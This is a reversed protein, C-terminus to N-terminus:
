KLIAGVFDRQGRLFERSNLEQKGALQLKKIVLANEGCQVALGSNYLFTKGPQYSNIELPRSQAETIRILKDQWYTWASPWPTMARIFREVKAASQTWDIRGDQKSLLKVYSARGQDQKFPKITGAAYRKITDALLEAGLVALKDYLQGANDYDSMPLKSQALIPGTDLSQDMKIITVGTERDNNLIAAQIVAAGRYKPLLSGHLNLCGLRPLNLIEAPLKQAYAVVIILDPRLGRIKDKLEIIKEPQLVELGYSRALEKVPPPTLEQKRGAPRDPQTIVALLQIQDDKILLKLSPLAFDPTGIFILRIKKDLYSM